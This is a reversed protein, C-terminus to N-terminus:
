DVGERRVFEWDRAVMAKYETEISKDIKYSYHEFAKHLYFLVTHIRTDSAGKM